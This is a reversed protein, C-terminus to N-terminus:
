FRIKGKSYIRHAEDCNIIEIESTLLKMNGSEILVNITGELVFIIEISNHWHIPYDSVNELSVGIPLSKIYSIYEKRM